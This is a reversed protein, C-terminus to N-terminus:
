FGQPDEKQADAIDCALRGAVAKILALVEDSRWAHHTMLQRGVALLTTEVTAQVLNAVITKSNSGEHAEPQKGLKSFDITM